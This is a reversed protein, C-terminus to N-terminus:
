STTRLVLGEIRVSDFSHVLIPPTRYVNYSATTEQRIGIQSIEVM